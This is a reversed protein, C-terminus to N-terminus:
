VLEISYCCWAHIEICFVFPWTCKGQGEHRQGLRRAAMVGVEPCDVDHSSSSSCAVCYQIFLLFISNAQCCHSVACASRILESRRLTMIVPCVPYVLSLMIVVISNRPFLMSELVELLVTPRGQKSLCTSVAVPRCGGQSVDEQGAAAHLVQLDDHPAHLCLNM